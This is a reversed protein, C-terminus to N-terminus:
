PNELTVIQALMQEELGKPTIAFNIITVKVFTEPPYHPNPMTTTMFFRFDSSYTINKGGFPLVLEGGQKITQKLLIPELIPDLEKGVNEYIIWRGYQIAMELKQTLSKESESPKVADFGGPHDRAMNKIYKNAQTQPDIM